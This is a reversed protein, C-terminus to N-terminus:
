PTGICGTILRTSFSSKFSVYHQLVCLLYVAWSLVNFGGRMEECRMGGGEREEKALESDFLCLISANTCAHLPSETDPATPPPPPEELAAGEDAGAKWTQCVV